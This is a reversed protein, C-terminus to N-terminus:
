CRGCDRSVWSPPTQSDRDDIEAFGSLRHGTRSRFDNLAAHLQVTSVIAVIESRGGSQPSADIVADIWDVPHVRSTAVSTKAGNHPQDVKAPHSEVAARRM